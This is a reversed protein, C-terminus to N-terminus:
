MVVGKEGRGVVLFVTATSCGGLVGGVGEERVMYLFNERCAVIGLVVTCLPQHQSNLFCGCRVCEM